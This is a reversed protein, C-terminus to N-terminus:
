VAPGLIATHGDRGAWSRLRLRNGVM